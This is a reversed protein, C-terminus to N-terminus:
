GNTNGNLGPYDNAQEEGRLVRLVGLALAEMEFSGPFTFIPAITEVRETIQALLRKSHAMGGTLIIGDPHGFLVTSMAGIDQAIQYTMAQFYFAATQDGADIRREVERLDNTGLYAALGGNGIAIKSVEAQTKGSFCYRILYIPVLAGCREPTMTNRCTNIIRGHRHVTTSIGGGMHTVVFDCEEYRKGLQEAARRAVAKSNLVHGGTMVGIDPHGSVRALPEFEDTSMADYTYGPIGVERMIDYALIASLVGAHQGAPNMNAEIQKDNIGYAGSHVSGLFGGRAAVADFTRVDIKLEELTRRLAARRMPLQDHIDNFATVEERTFSIDHELTKKENDFLAIKLSTSGSNIVFIRYEDKKM